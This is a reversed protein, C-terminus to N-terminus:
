ENAGAGPQVLQSSVDNIKVRQGPVVRHSGNVIVAEGAVIEGRVLAWDTELQVLELMKRAVTAGASPSDQEDPPENEAIVLTSWLGESERNLASYPLWFGSNETPLFFKIKVTQGFSWSNPPLDDSIQLSIKKSGLPSEVPSRALLQAQVPQGGIGVWIAQGINLRDAIKRPLSTEVLPRTNELVQLVPSQPAVRDGVDATHEAVVCDYPAVILGQAFELDVVQLQSELQQIEQQVPPRLNQEGPQIQQKARLISQEIDQKQNELQEQALEALKEGEKAEDGTRKFLTKIQGGRAFGLRSQRNPELTGFFVATEVAEDVPSVRLVNVTLVAAPNSAEPKSM